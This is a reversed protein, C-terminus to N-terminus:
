GTEQPIQQQQCLDHPKINTKILLQPAAARETPRDSYSAATQTLLSLLSVLGYMCTLGLLGVCRRRRRSEVTANLRTPPTYQAIKGQQKSKNCAAM